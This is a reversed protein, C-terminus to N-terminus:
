VPLSKPMAQLCRPTPTGEPMGVGCHEAPPLRHSLAGPVVRAHRCGSGRLVNCRATLSCFRAAWEATTRQYERGSVSLQVDVVRYTGSFGLPRQHASYSEFTSVVLIKLLKRSASPLRPCQHVHVRGPVSIAGENSGRDFRRIGFGFKRPRIPVSARATVRFSFGYQTRRGLRKPPFRSPTLRSPQFGQTSKKQKNRAMYGKPVRARGVKGM